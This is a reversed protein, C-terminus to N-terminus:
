GIVQLQDRPFSTISECGDTTVVLLDEIRVGGFGPLYVGPEVTVTMGPELTDKSLPSLRPGEHVELGVGHGLGHGFHEKHGAADIVQRAAADVEVGSAGPKLAAVGTRNARLVLDYLEKAKPSPEGISFVRTMDACYHSVRAGIDCLLLDGEKVARDGPQYHPLSSNEGAAIILDFSVKEAGNTRMLWELRLALEHETVGVKVEKLLATLSEETVRTAERIRAIEDPDKIRRLAGVPDEEAVIEVGTLKGVRTVTYHSMRRAALALRKIKLDKIAAAIEDDYNKKVMQLPLEPVERGAQETYRSDTILLTKDSTVILGGEGTFGTLYYMSVWDSGELNYVLFGDADIRSLLADRRNAFDTM